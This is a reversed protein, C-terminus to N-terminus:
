ASNVVWMKHNIFYFDNIFKVVSFSATAFNAVAKYFKAVESQLQSNELWLNEPQMATCGKGTAFNVVQKTFYKLRM